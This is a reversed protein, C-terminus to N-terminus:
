HFLEFTRSKPCGRRIYQPQSVSRSFHVNIRYFVKIDPPYRNGAFWASTNRCCFLPPLIRPTCLDIVVAASRFDPPPTILTCFLGSAQMDVFGKEQHFNLIHFGALKNCLRALAALHDDSRQVPDTLRTDSEIGFVDNQPAALLAAAAPCKPHCLAPTYSASTVYGLHFANKQRRCSNFLDDPTDGFQPILILNM